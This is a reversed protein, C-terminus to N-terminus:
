QGLYNWVSFWFKRTLKHQYKANRWIVSYGHETLPKVMLHWVLFRVIKNQKMLPVLWKAMRKYGTAVSPFTVYYRDRCQRVFSPMIGHYSELFIFCCSTGGGASQNQADNIGSSNSVSSGLSGFTSNSNSIPASANSALPNFAGLSTGLINSGANAVGTATNTSANLLPIKSNFAGGFNMANGITNMANSNGLNGTALNSQNTSREVANSEGPSLGNMNIANVGEVAGQNAAAMAPAGPTNATAKSATSLMSPLASQYLSLLQGPTMQPASTSSSTGSSVNSSGSKASSLGQSAGSSEQGSYYRLGLKTEIKWNNIM